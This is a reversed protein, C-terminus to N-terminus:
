LNFKDLFGPLFIDLYKKYVVLLQGAVKKNPQKYKKPIVSILEIIAQRFYGDKIYKEVGIVFEDLEFVSMDDKINRSARNKIILLHLFYSTFKNIMEDAQAPLHNDFHYIKSPHGGTLLMILRANISGHIQILDKALIAHGRSASMRKGDLLGMGTVFYRKTQYKERLLYSESFLRKVIWNKLHEECIFIDCPLFDIIQNISVNDTKKKNHLVEFLEKFFKKTDRKSYSNEKRFRIYLDFIIFLESDFMPDIIWEKNYKVGFGSKRLLSWDNRVNRMASIVINKQFSQTFETRSLLKQASEKWTDSEYDLALENKKNKIILKNKEYHSIIENVFISFERSNTTYFYHYDCSVNLAKLEWLIEQSYYDLINIPDTFGKLIYEPTGYTEKYLTRTKEEKEDAEKNSSYINNFTAAINQATNGSYHSAVPFIVEKGDQRAHRALIDAIVFMRAHDINLPCVPYIYALSIFLKKNM